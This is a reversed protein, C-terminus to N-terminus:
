VIVGVGIIKAIEDAHEACVRFINRLNEVDEKAAEEALIKDIIGLLVEMIEVLSGRTQDFTKVAPITGVIDKLTATIDDMHRRGLSDKLIQEMNNVAEIATENDTANKIRENAASLENRLAEYAQKRTIVALNESIDAQKATNNLTTNSM